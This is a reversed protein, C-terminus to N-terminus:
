SINQLEKTAKAVMKAHWNEIREGDVSPTALTAKVVADRFLEESLELTLANWTEVDELEHDDFVGEFDGYKESCYDGYTFLRKAAKQSEKHLQKNLKNM